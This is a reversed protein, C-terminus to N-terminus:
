GYRMQTMQQNPPTQQQGRYFHPEIALTAGISGGLMALNQPMSAQYTPNLLQKTKPDVIQVFKGGLNIDKGGAFGTLGQRLRNSALGRALASSAILDAGGVLAGAFPNGTSLTTLGATIFSGPLSQSILHSGGGKLFKKGGPVKMLNKFLNGALGTALSM